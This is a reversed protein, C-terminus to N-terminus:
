KADPPGPAHKQDCSKIKQRRHQWVVLYALNDVLKSRESAVTEAQDSRPPIRVKNDDM